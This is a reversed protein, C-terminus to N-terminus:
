AEAKDLVALRDLWTPMFSRQMPTDAPLGGRARLFAALSYGIRSVNEEAISQHKETRGRQAVHAEATMVCVQALAGPFTHARTHSIADRLADLQRQAAGCAEEDAGEAREIIASAEEIRRGLRAADCTASLPEATPAQPGMLSSLHDGILAFLHPEGDMRSHGRASAGIARVLALLGAATRPPTALMRDWAADERECAADLEPCDDTYLNVFHLAAQQQRIAELVPDPAVVERIGDM